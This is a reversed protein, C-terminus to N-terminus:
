KFLARLWHAATKLRARWRTSFCPRPEINAADTYALRELKYVRMKALSIRAGRRPPPEDPSHHASM